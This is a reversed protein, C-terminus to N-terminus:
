HFPIISFLNLAVVVFILIGVIGILLLPRWSPPPADLRLANGLSANCKKCTTARDHNARGCNLCLKVM